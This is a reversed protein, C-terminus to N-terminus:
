ACRCTSWGVLGVDSAVGFLFFSFSIFRVNSSSASIVKMQMRVIPHSSAGCKVVFPPSFNVINPPTKKTANTKTKYRMPRKKDRMSLSSPGSRPQPPASERMDPISNPNKNNHPIYVAITPVELHIHSITLVHKQSFFIERLFLFVKVIFPSFHFVVARFRAVLLM